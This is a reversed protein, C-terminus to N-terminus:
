TCCHPERLPEFSSGICQYSESLFDSTAKSVTGFQIKNGYKIISLFPPGNANEDGQIPMPKAPRISAEWSQARRSQAAWIKFRALLVIFWISESSQPLLLYRYNSAFKDSFIFALIIFKYDPSLLLFSIYEDISMHMVKRDKEWCKLGTKIFAPFFIWRSTAHQLIWTRM